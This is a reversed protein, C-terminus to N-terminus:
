SLDSMWSHSLIQELNPRKCPDRMLCLRVLNRCEKSIGRNFRMCGKVIESDERFPLKGNVMGFLLVGLSWVTAENGQYRGELFWEPAIYEATGAIERYSRARLLDGCGFDILKVKMTDTQVLLNEMKIDRHFVSRSQCHQMAVVVQQMIDRAVAQDLKGGMAMCYDSLDMCPTPRELVLVIIKPLEYWDLLEVVNDCVPPQSVLLMLVVELPHRCITGPVTIYDLECKPIYKIAVEKGDTRRTGEFVYGCGGQGLMRGVSYLSNFCVGRHPNRRAKAKCLSCLDSCSSGAQESSASTYATSASHDSSNAPDLASSPIAVKIKKAPRLNDSDLDQFVTKRKRKSVIDSQTGKDEMKPTPLPVGRRPKESTTRTQMALDPDALMCNVQSTQPGPPEPFVLDFREAKFRKRAPGKGRDRDMRGKRKMRMM